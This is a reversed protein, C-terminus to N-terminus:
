RCNQVTRDRNEENIVKQNKVQLFRWCRKGGIDPLLVKENEIRKKIRM